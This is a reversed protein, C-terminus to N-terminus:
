PNKRVFDTGKIVFDLLEFYDLNIMKGVNNMKKRNQM